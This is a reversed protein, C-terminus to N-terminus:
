GVLERSERVVPMGADDAFEISVIEHDDLDLALKYPVRVLVCIVEKQNEAAPNVNLQTVSDNRDTGAFYKNDRTSNLVPREGRLLRM